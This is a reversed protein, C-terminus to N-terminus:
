EKGLVLDCVWCGRVHVLNADRCHNLVQEDECGGDQLADALIPMAGFERSEYLQRAVAVATDTRCAPDFAVPCFTVLDRVLNAQRAMEDLRLYPDGTDEDDYGVTEGAPRAFAERAWHAAGALVEPHRVGSDDAHHVAYEAPTDQDQILWGASKFEAPDLAGDAMREVAELDARGWDALLNWISRCCACAFLRAKRESVRDWVSKLLEEPDGCERWDAESM